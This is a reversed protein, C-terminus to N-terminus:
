KGGGAGACVAKSVQGKVANLFPKSHVSTAAASVEEYSRTPGQAVLSRAVSAKAAHKLLPTGFFSDTSLTKEFEDLLAQTKARAAKAAKAAAQADRIPQLEAKLAENEAKLAKIQETMALLQASTSDEVPAPTAVPMAVPLFSLLCAKFATLFQEPAAAAAKNALIASATYAAAIRVADIETSIEAFATGIFQAHKDGLKAVRDSVATYVQQFSFPRVQVAGKVSKETFSFGTSPDYSMNFAFKGTNARHNNSITQQVQLQLCWSTYDTPTPWVAAPDQGTMMIIVLRHVRNSNLVAVVEKVTSADLELFDNGPETSIRAAELINDVTMPVDETALTAIATIARAIARLALNYVKNNAM